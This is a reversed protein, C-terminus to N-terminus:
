PVAPLPWSRWRPGRPLGVDHHRAFAMGGNHCYKRGTHFLCVLGDSGGFFVSGSVRRIKGQLGPAKTPAAFPAMIRNM